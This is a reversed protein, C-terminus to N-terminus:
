KMEFEFVRVDMKYGCVCVNMLKVLLKGRANRKAQIRSCQSRLFPTRKITKNYGIM